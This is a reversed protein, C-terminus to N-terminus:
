SSEVIEMRMRQRVSHGGCLNVDGLNVGIDTLFKIASKSEHVQFSFESNQLLNLTPSVLIDVLQQDNERDGASLTDSYFLEPSDNIELSKQTQTGCGNIGVLLATSILIYLVNPFRTRSKGSSAKASNGGFDAEKDVIIIKSDADRELIELAASLGALGGGVIIIPESSKPMHGRKSDAGTGTAPQVPSITGSLCVLLTLIGLLTPLTM